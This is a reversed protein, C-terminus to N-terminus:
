IFDRDSIGYQEELPISRYNEELDNNLDKIEEKLKDNEMQLDELLDLIESLSVKDKDKYLQSLILSEDTKIFINKM